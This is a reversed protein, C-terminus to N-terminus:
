SLYVVLFSILSIVIAVAHFVFFSKSSRGLTKAYLVHNIFYAIAYTGLIPILAAYPGFRKFVVLSSAIFVWTSTILTIVFLM